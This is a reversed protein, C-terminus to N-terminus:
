YFFFLADSQRWGGWWAYPIRWQRRLQLTHGLSSFFSSRCFNLSSRAAVHGDLLVRDCVRFVSNPSSSPELFLVTERTLFRLRFSLKDNLTFNTLRSLDWLAVPRGLSPPSSDVMDDRTALRATRFSIPFIHIIEGKVTCAAKFSPDWAIFNVKKYLQVAECVTKFSDPLGSARRLKSYGTAPPSRAASSRGILRGTKRWESTSVLISRTSRQSRSSSVSQASTVVFLQCPLTPRSM